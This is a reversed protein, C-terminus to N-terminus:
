EIPPRREGYLAYWAVDERTIGLRELERDNMLSLREYRRAAEFGEVVALFTQRLSEAQRRWRGAPRTGVAVDTM